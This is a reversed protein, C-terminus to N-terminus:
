VPESLRRMVKAAEQAISEGALAQAILKAVTDAGVRESGLEGILTMLLYVEILKGEAEDAAEAAQRYEALFDAAAAEAEPGVAPKCSGGLSAAIGREIVTQLDVSDDCPPDTYYVEGVWVGKMENM